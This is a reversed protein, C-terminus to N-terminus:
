RQHLLQDDLRPGTRIARVRDGTWRARGRARAPLASCAALSRCASRRGGEREGRAGAGEPRVTRLKKRLCPAQEGARAVHRRARAACTSCAFTCRPLRTYSRPWRSTSAQASACRSWSTM